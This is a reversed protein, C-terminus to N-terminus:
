CLMIQTKVRRKHKILKEELACNARKIVAQGTPNLPIDTIYKVNYYGFFQKM